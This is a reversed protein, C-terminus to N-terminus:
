ANSTSNVTPMNEDPTFISNSLVVDKGRYLRSVFIEKTLSHKTSGKARQYMKLYDDYSKNPNRVKFTIM